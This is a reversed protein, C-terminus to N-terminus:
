LGGKTTQKIPQQKPEKVNSAINGDDDFDAELNLMAQIHYRRFYTIGSGIQQPTSQVTGIASKSHISENTDIHTLTTILYQINDEFSLTYHLSLKNEYLADKCSKFIDELTSYTHVGNQTKFFNNKGSKELNKFNQKANELAELLKTM